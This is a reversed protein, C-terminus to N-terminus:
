NMMAILVVTWFAIMAFVAVVLLARGKHTHLWDPVRNKVRDDLPENVTREIWRYKWLHLANKTRSLFGRRMPRAHEDGSDQPSGILEDEDPSPSEEYHGNQSTM